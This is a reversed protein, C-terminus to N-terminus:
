ACREQARDALADLIARREPPVSVALTLDEDVGDIVFTFFSCCETERQALNRVQETLGTTGSLRIRVVGDRDRTVNRASDTFLSDFEALRTPRDVTPLTCADTNMLDEM